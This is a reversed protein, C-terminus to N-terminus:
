AAIIWVIIGLLFVNAAIIAAFVWTLKTLVMNQQIKLDMIKENLPELDITPTEDPQSEIAAMQERLENLLEEKTKRPM